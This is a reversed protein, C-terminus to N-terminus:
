IRYFKLVELLFKSLPFKLGWQFHDLQVLVEETDLSLVISGAMARFVINDPLLGTSVREELAKETVALELWLSATVALVPDVGTGGGTLSEGM